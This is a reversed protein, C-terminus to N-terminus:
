KKKVIFFCHDRELPDLIRFDVVIAKKEIDKKVEAFIERPRRSIDISRAKVALLGYGGKKVFLRLNKFFIEVQNKQAIDQYLVDVQCVKSALDMINNGDTLVPVINKRRELNFVLKRMVVPAIDVAFILGEPGVIDSVHSVTTGTSSGLYLVVSGRRIFINPSGKIIAAALKSKKPNWERFEKGSERVLREDYVKVGPVPNVTYLKRKDKYVEFIRSPTIKTM